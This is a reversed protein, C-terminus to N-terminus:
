VGTGYSFVGQLAALHHPDFGSTALVDDLVADPVHWGAIAALVLAGMTEEKDTLVHSAWSELNLTGLMQGLLADEDGAGPGLLQRARGRLARRRAESESLQLRSRVAALRGLGAGAPARAREGNAAGGEDASAEADADELWAAAPGAEEDGPAGRSASRDSDDDGDCMEKRRMLPPPGMAVRLSKKRAARVQSALELLEDLDPEEGSAAAPAGPLRESKGGAGAGDDPAVQSDNGASSESAARAKLWASTAPTGADSLATWIRGFPSLNASPLVDAVDISGGFGLAALRSDIVNDGEGDEDGGDVRARPLPDGDREEGAGDSGEEEDPPLQEHVPGLQARARGTAARSIHGEIARPGRGVSPQEVRKGGRPREVVDGMVAREESGSGQVKPNLDADLTDRQSVPVRSLARMYKAAESACAESCYRNVTRASYVRRDRHSIHFKQGPKFARLRGDCCPYACRLDNSREELVDDFHTPHIFRAAEALTARSVTETLQLSTQYALQEKAVRMRIAVEVDKPVSPVREAASPPKSRPPPLSSTMISGTRPRVNRGPDVGARGKREPWTGGGPRTQRGTARDNHHRTGEGVAHVYFAHVCLPWGCCGSRQRDAPNKQDVRPPLCVLRRASVRQDSSTTWRLLLEPYRPARTSDPSGCSQM